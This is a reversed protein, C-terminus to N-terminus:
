SPKRLTTWTSEPITLSSRSPGTSNRCAYKLCPRSSKSSCMLLFTLSFGTHPFGTSNLTSLYSLEHWIKICSQSHLYTWVKHFCVERSENIDQAQLSIKSSKVLSKKDVKRDNYYLKVPPLFTHTIYYSLKCILILLASCVKVKGDAIYFSSM